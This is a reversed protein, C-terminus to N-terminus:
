PSLSDLVKSNKGPTKTEFIEKSELVLTLITLRM